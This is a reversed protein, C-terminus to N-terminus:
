KNYFMSELFIEIARDQNGLLMAVRKEGKEKLEKRLADSSYVYLLRSSLDDISTPNFYCAADGCVEPISTASSAIVPVGVSMAHLPPYGFGENLSPYVFAFAGNYLYSLEDYSVYDLLEFRKRNKLRKWFPLNGCGTIKVTSGELKGASFLRDFAQVARWVNKEYRNGSIMLFYRDNADACPEKTLPSFPSYIVDLDKENLFPFFSIISYKSHYSATVFRAGPIRLVKEFRRIQKRKWYDIFPPFLGAIKAVFRKVSRAYYLHKYNDWPLEIGRLGHIVGWLQSSGSYDGYEYPHATYFIDYLEKDALKYIEANASIQLIKGKFSKKLIKSIDDSLQRNSDLVVDFTYGKEVMKRFIYKAYEGGGHFKATQTSQMATGDFLLRNM